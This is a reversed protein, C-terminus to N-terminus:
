NNIPILNIKLQLALCERVKLSDSNGFGELVPIIAMALVLGIDRGLKM